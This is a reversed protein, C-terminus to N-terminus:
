ASEGTMAVQCQRLSTRSGPLLVQNLGPLPENLQHGELATYMTPMSSYGKLPPDAWNEITMLGQQGVQTSEAAGAFNLSHQVGPKGSNRHM